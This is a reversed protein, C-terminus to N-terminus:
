NQYICWPFVYFYRNRHQQQKLRKFSHSLSVVSAAGGTSLSIRSHKLFLFLATHKSGQHFKSSVNNFRDKCFTGRIQSLIAFHQVTDENKKQWNPSNPPFYFNFMSVTIMTALLTKNDWFRCIFWLNITCDNPFNDRNLSFAFSHLVPVETITKKKLPVQTLRIHGMHCFLFLFVLRPHNLSHQPM